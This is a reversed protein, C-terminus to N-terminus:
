HQNVCVVQFSSTNLGNKYFVLINFFGVRSPAYFRTEWQVFYLECIHVTWDGSFKYLSSVFGSVLCSYIHFLEIRFLFLGVLISIKRYQKYYVICFGSLTLHLREGAM